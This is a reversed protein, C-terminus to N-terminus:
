NGEKEKLLFPLWIWLLLISSITIPIKVISGLAVEKAVTYDIASDNVQNVAVASELVGTSKNYIGNFMFLSLLIVITAIIRVKM